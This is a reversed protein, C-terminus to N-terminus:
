EMVGTVVISAAAGETTRRLWIKSFPLGAARESVPGWGSGGGSPFSTGGATKEPRGKDGLRMTIGGGQAQLLGEVMTTELNAVGALQALTRYEDKVPEVITFPEPM